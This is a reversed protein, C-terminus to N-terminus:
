MDAWTDPLLDYDLWVTSKNGFKLWTNLGVYSDLSLTPYSREGTQDHVFIQETVRKYSIIGDVNRLEVLDGLEYDIGYKYEGNQNLEGDFYTQARAQALERYGIAQLTGSVDVTDATVENGADVLLVRLDFGAVDPDVDAAFVQELGYDSYVYAVNKSDSINTYETTNQLNDLNVAFIVPPLDTQKTTLDRGTYIDFYLQSTDFKRVLRFGFDYIDCIKKIINYLIDAGQDWNIPNAPEPLTDAPFFDSNVYPFINTGTWTPLFPISNADGFANGFYAAQNFIDRAINGPTDTFLQTLNSGNEFWDNRYGRDKMITELSPGKVKLISKGDADTTDEVTEVTMVRHSNNIALKTGTTFAGRSEITSSIDLEFDGIDAFRETWIMSDFVDFVQIRRLLSDLVYVEM